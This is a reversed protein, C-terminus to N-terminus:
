IVPSIVSIFYTFYLDLFQVQAVGASMKDWKSYQGNLIAQQRRNSLFDKLTQLDKGYLGCVELKHILCERCVTDFIKQPPRPLHCM